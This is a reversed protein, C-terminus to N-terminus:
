ANGILSTSQNGRLGIPVSSKSVVTVMFTENVLSGAAPRRTGSVSIAVEIPDTKDPSVASKSDPAETEPSSMDMLLGAKSPVSSISSEGAMAELTCFRLLSSSTEVGSCCDPKSGILGRGPVEPLAVLWFRGPGSKNVPLMVRSGRLEDGGWLGGAGVAVLSIGGAGGTDGDSSVPDNLDIVLPGNSPAAPVTSLLVYGLYIDMSSAPLDAM